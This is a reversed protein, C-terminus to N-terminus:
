VYRCTRLGPGAPTGAFEGLPWAQAGAAGWLARGASRMFTWWLAASGSCRPVAYARAVQRGAKAAAAGQRGSAAVTPCGERPWQRPAVALLQM